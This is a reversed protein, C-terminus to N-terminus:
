SQLVSMASRIKKKNSNILFLCVAFKDYLICHIIYLDSEYRKHNFASISVNRQLTKFTQNSNCSIFTEEADTKAIQQLVWPIFVEMWDFSNYRDTWQISVSHESFNPNWANKMPRERSMWDWHISSFLLCMETVIWYKKKWPFFEFFNMM